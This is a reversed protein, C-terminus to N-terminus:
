DLRVSIILSVNLSIDTFQYTGILFKPNAVCLINRAGGKIQQFAANGQDPLKIKLLESPGPFIPQRRDKVPICMQLIEEVGMFRTSFGHDDIPLEPADPDPCKIQAM